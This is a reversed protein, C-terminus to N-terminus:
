IAMRFKITPQLSYGTLVFDETHVDDLMPKRGITLRPPDSPTRAIQEKMGDVHNKYIRADGMSITLSGPDKDTIRAILVATRCLGFAVDQLRGAM